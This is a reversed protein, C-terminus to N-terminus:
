LSDASGPPDIDDTPKRCPSPRRGAVSKLRDIFRPRRERRETEGEGQRGGHNGEMGKGSAQSIQPGGETGSDGPHSPSCPSEGRLRPSGTSHRRRRTSPSDTPQPPTPPPPTLTKRDPSIPTLSDETPTVPPLRSGVLFLQRRSPLFHLNWLQLSSNVRSAYEASAWLRRRSASDRVGRVVYGGVLLAALLFLVLAAAPGVSVSFFNVPLVSGPGGCALRSCLAGAMVSVIGLPHHAFESDAAVPVVGRKPCLAEMPPPCGPIRVCLLFLCLAALATCGVLATREFTESRKYKVFESRIAVELRRLDEVEETPLKAFEVHFLNLMEKETEQAGTLKWTSPNQLSFSRISRFSM